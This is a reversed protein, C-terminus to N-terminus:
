RWRYILTAALTAGLGLFTIGFFAWVVQKVTGSSLIALAIGVAGAVVYCCAAVVARTGASSSRRWPQVFWPESV